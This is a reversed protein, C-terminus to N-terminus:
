GAYSHELMRDVLFDWALGHDENLRMTPNVLAGHNSDILKELQHLADAIATPDDLDYLLAPVGLRKVARENLRYRPAVLPLGTRSSDQVHEAEGGAIRSSWIGGVRPFMRELEPLTRYPLRQLGNYLELQDPVLAAIGLHHNVPAAADHAMIVDILGGERYYAALGDLANDLDDTANGDVLWLVSYADRESKKELLSPLADLADPVVEVRERRVGAYSIIDVVTDEDSTVVLGQRWIRFAETELDWYPDHISGTISKPVYRQALDGCYHATPRLPLIAGLRLEGFSLWLDCDQFNWGWDRPVAVETIGALDLTEPLSTFMRRANQVPIRVWETRRVVASPVRERISREFNRWRREPLEPLGITVEVPQGAATRAGALAAAIETVRRVLSLGPSNPLLLAIRVAEPKGASTNVKTTARASRSVM